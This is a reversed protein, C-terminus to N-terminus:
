IIQKNLIRYLKRMKRKRGIKRETKWTTMEETWDYPDFLPKDLSFVYPKNRAKEICWDGCFPKNNYLVCKGIEEPTEQNSKRENIRYGCYQCQYIM